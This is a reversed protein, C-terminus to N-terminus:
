NPYWLSMFGQEQPLRRFTDFIGKYRTDKSIQTSADQTQLVLKVREIPAVITKSIGGALGGALLDRMFSIAQAEFATTTSNTSTATTATMSAAPVIVPAAPNASTM